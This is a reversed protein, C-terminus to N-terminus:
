SCISCKTYTCILFDYFLVGSYMLHQLFENIGEQIYRTYMYPACHSIHFMSVYQPKQHLMKNTIGILEIIAGMATATDFDDALAGLIKTKVESVTQFSLSSQLVYHVIVPLCVSLPIDTEQQPLYGIGKLDM